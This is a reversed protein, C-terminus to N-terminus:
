RELGDQAVFAPRHGLARVVPSWFKWLYRTEAADGVADPVTVFLCGLQDRFAYLMRMYAGVDLGTFCGNDMAWRQPQLALENPDNWQRPVILHGVEATRAFRTAGSVLLLM